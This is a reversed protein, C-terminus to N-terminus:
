LGTSRVHLFVPFRPLGNTTTGYYKYTITTGIKPPAHREKDSLGSGIKFVIGKPTKCTFAGLMGAYKGQGEHHAVVSCEADQYSKVKLAKDTRFALYPASPDRVVLGEGGKAEIDALTKKLHAKDECRTQVILALYPAEHMKLYAQLVELRALLGGKQDPVEFVHLKLARWGAHPTLQSTISQIQAFAGRASWLEGDVPFPPFGKTFWTPAAFAHGGRSRLQEGDWFARVGDLKESLLWGTVDQDEYTELLLLDPKQGFLV